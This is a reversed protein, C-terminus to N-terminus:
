NTQFRAYQNGLSNMMSQLLYLRMKLVGIRMTLEDSQAATPRWASSQASPLSAATIVDDVVQQEAKVLGEQAGYIDAFKSANAYPMYAFVGSTQATRWAVNDFSHTQFGFSLSKGQANPQARMQALTALDADLEKQQDDIPQNMSALTKQNQAIEHSMASEAEHVMHRHHQWEVFGELGLAILLGITITLLHLLFDKWGHMRDHPAHVDLM